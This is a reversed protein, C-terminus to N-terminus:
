GHSDVWLSDKARVSQRLWKVVQPKSGSLEGQLWAGQSVRGSFKEVSVKRDYDKHLMRESSFVLQRKDIHKAKRCAYAICM